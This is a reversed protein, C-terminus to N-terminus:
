FIQGNILQYAEANLADILERVITGDDPVDDRKVFVVLRQARFTKSPRKLRLTGPTCQLEAQFHFGAWLTTAFTLETNM